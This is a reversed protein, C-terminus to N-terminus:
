QINTKHYELGLTDLVGYYVYIEDDTSFHNPLDIVKWFDDKSFEDEISIPIYSLSGNPSNLFAGIRFLNFSDRHVIVDIMGVNNDDKSFFQKYHATPIYHKCRTIVKKKINDEEKFLSYISDRQTDSM